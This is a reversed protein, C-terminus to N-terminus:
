RGRSLAELQHRNRPAFYDQRLLDGLLDKRVCWLQLMDEWEGLIAVAAAKRDDKLLDNLNQVLAYLDELEWPEELDGYQIRLEMVPRDRVDVIRVRKASGGVAQCLPGLLEDSRVDLAVSLGGMLLGRHCLQLIELHPPAPRRDGREPRHHEFSGTGKKLLGDRELRELLPVPM